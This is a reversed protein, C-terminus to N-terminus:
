ESGGELSDFSEGYYVLLVFGLEKRYRCANLESTCTAQSFQAVAVLKPNFALFLM